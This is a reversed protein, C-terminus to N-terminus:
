NCLKAYARQVSLLKTVTCNQAGNDTPPQHRSFLKSLSMVPWTAVSMGPGFVKCATCPLHVFHPLPFLDRHFSLLKILTADSIQCLPGSFWNGSHHFWEMKLPLLTKISNRHGCLSREWYRRQVNTKCVMEFTSGPQQMRDKVMEIPTPDKQLLKRAPSSWLSGDYWM